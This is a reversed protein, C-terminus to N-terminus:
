KCFADGRHKRCDKKRKETLNYLDSDASEKGGAKTNQPNKRARVEVPGVVKRPTGKGAEKDFIGSL